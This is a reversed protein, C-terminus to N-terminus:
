RNVFATKVGLHDSKKVNCANTQIKQISKVNCKVVDSYSKSKVARLSLLKAIELRDFLHKETFNSNYVVRDGSSKMCHHTM